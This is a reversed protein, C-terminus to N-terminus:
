ISNVFFEVSCDHLNKIFFPIKLFFLMECNTAAEFVPVVRFLSNPVHSKVISPIPAIIPVPIKTNVPAPARVAPGASIMENTIAPRAQKNAAREYASNADVTGTEPETYVYV